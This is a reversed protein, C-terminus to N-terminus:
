CDRATNLKIFVFNLTEIRHHKWSLKRSSWFEPVSAFGNRYLARREEMVLKSM